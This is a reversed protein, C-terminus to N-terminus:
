GTKSMRGIKGDTSRAQAQGSLESVSFDDQKFPMSLKDATCAYLQLVFSKSQFTETLIQGFVPVTGMLENDIDLTEGDTDEYLYDILVGKSADAAAFTYAGTTSNVSYQGATPGSAVQTLPEGTLSFFVGLDQVFDAGNAVTVVYSVSGPIAGVEGSVPVIAGTAVSQGFFLENYLKFNVQGTQAKWEIKSKGRAIAEAFQRQGHLTKLDGSFDVSVDQLTGFRLPAGSVIGYLQGSGFIHQGM